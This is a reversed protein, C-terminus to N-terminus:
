FKKEIYYVIARDKKIEISNINFKDLVKKIREYLEDQKEIVKKYDLFQSIPTMWELRGEVFKKPHVIINKQKEKIEYEFKTSNVIGRIYTMYGNIANGNDELFM